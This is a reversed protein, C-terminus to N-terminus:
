YMGIFRPKPASILANKFNKNYISIHTNPLLFPRKGVELSADGPTPIKNILHYTNKIM